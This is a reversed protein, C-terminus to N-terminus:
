FRDAWSPGPIYSYVLQVAMEYPDVIFCNFEFNSPSIENECTLANRARTKDRSKVALVFCEFRRAFSGGSDAPRGYMPWPNWNIFLKEPRM